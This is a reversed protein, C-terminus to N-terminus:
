TRAWTSLRAFDATNNSRNQDRKKKKKKQKRKITKKNNKTEIRRPHNWKEVFPEAALPLKENAKIRPASPCRDSFLLSWSVSIPESSLLFSWFRALPRFPRWFLAFVVSQCFVLSFSLALATRGCELGKNTQFLGLPGTTHPWVLVSMCSPPSAFRMLTVFSCLSVPDWLKGLTHGGLRKKSAHGMREVGSEKGRFRGTEM